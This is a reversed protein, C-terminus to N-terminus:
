AVLGDVPRQVFPEIHDMTEDCLTVACYTNIGNRKAFEISKCLRSFGDKMGTMRKYEANNCGYMSFQILDLKKLVKPDHEFFISGNTIMHVDSYKSLLDIYKLYSPHLTPDGGSRFLM